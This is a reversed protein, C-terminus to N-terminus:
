KLVVENKLNYTKDVYFAVRVIRILPTLSFARPMCVLKFASSFNIWFTKNQFNFYFCRLQCRDTELRCRLKKSISLYFPTDFLKGLKIDMM